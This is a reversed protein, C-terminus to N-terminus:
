QSNDVTQHFIRSIPTGQAIEEITWETHSLWKLWEERQPRQPKDIYSFDLNGVPEALSDKTVFAPVGNIISLIGTNSSPNVVAWASNLDHDFDFNDYTGHLLKPIRVTVDKYSFNASWHWDRPHPRFIIPKDSYAKISDITQKLWIQPHPMNAWQESKTHQGCILINKGDMTWPKLQIGLTSPRNPIISTAMGFYGVNNIHNLGVKWTVGRNLCGVELVLVTKGLKKAQDWIQKNAEMKGHWLVSWIVLIDASMDHETVTHGLHKAGREFAAFVSKSNQAGFRPFISFKM